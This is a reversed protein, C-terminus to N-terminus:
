CSPRGNRPSLDGSVDTWAAFALSRQVSGSNFITLLSQVVFGVEVGLSPGGSVSVALAVDM